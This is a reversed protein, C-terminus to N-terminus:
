EMIIQLDMYLKMFYKNMHDSRKEDKLALRAGGIAGTASWGSGIFRFGSGSGLAGGRYWPVWKYQNPDNYDAQWKAINPDDNNVLETIVQLIFLARMGKAFKNPIENLADLMSVNLKDPHKKFAKAVTTIKTYM